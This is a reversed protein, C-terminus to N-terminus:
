IIKLWLMNEERTFEGTRREKSHKSNYIARFVTATIRTLNQWKGYAEILPCTTQKEKNFRFNKGRILEHNDSLVTLHIVKVEKQMEENIDLQM